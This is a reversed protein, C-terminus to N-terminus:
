LVFPEHKPPITRDPPHGKSFALLFELYRQPDLRDRTRAMELAAIDDATTPVVLFDIPDSDENSRM